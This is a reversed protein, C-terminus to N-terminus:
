IILLLIAPIDKARIHTWWIEFFGDTSRPTFVTISPCQLPQSPVCSTVERCDLAQHRLGHRYVVASATVIAISFILALYAISVQTRRSFIKAKEQMVLRLFGLVCCIIAFIVPVIRFTDVITIIGQKGLVPFACYPVNYQSPKSCTSKPDIICQTGDSYRFPAFSDENHLGRIVWAIILQVMRPFIGFLMAVVGSAAWWPQGYDSNAAMLGVVNAFLALFGDYSLGGYRHNVMGIIAFVGLAIARV